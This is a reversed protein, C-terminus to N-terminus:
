DRANYKPKWHISSGTLILELCTISGSEARFTMIQSGDDQFGCNQPFILCSQLLDQLTIRYLYEIIIIIILCRYM